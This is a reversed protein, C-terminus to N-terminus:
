VAEAETEIEAEETRVEAAVEARYRRSAKQEREWRDAIEEEEELSLFEESFYLDEIGYMEFFLENM